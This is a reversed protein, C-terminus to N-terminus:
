ESEGCLNKLKEAPSERQPQPSAKPTAETAPKARKYDTEYFGTGKFEFGLRGCTFIKYAKGGCQCKVAKKMDKIPVNCEFVTNCHNCQFDYTPM